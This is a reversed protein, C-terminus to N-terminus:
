LKNEGEIRVLPLIKELDEKILRNKELLNKVLVDLSNRNEKLTKIAIQLQEKVIREASQTVMIALPGDYLQGSLAVQGFDDAMGYERVMSV